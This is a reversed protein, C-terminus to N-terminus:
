VEAERCGRGWRRSLKMIIGAMPWCESSIKSQDWVGGWEHCGGRRDVTYDELALLFCDYVHPVLSHNPWPLVTFVISGLAKVADRRAEAWKDTGETIKSCKILAHIVEEEKGRLISGPLVGLASSFGRRVMEAGELKGIFSSVLKDRRQTDLM